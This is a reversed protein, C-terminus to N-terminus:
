LPFTVVLTYSNVKGFYAEDVLLKLHVTQCPFITTSMSGNFVPILSWIHFKCANLAGIHVLIHPSYINEYYLKEKKVPIHWFFIQGSLALEPNHHLLYKAAFITQASFLSFDSFIVLPVPFVEQSLLFLSLKDQKDPISLCFCLSFLCM